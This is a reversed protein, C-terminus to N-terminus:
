YRWPIPIRGVSIASGGDPMGHSGISVRYIIVAPGYSILASRCMDPMLITDFLASACLLSLPAGRAIRAIFRSGFLVAELLTDARHTDSAICYLM